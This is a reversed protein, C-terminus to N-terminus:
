SDNSAKLYHACRTCRWWYQTGHGDFRMPAGCKPCEVENAPDSGITAHEIDDIGLPAHLKGCVEDFKTQLEGYDFKAQAYDNELKIAYRRWSFFLKIRRWATKPRATLMDSVMTMRRKTLEAIQKWLDRNERMAAILADREAIAANKQREMTAMNRQVENIAELPDGTSQSELRLAVKGKPQPEDNGTTM